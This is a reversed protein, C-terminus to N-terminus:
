ADKHRIEPQHYPRAILSLKWAKALAEVEEELREKSLSFDAYPHTAYLWRCRCHKEAFTEFATKADPGMVVALRPNLIELQYQLFEGCFHSFNPMDQWSKKTLASGDERLGMIVNSFFTKERPIHSKIVRNKVHRWTPNTEFGKRECKRYSALTGFDNGLFIVGGEPVVGAKEAKLDTEDRWLGDGGPFFGQGKLRFPFKCMGKPYPRGEFRLEREMCDLKKWLESIHM